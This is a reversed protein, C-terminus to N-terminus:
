LFNRRFFADCAFMEDLCLLITLIEAECNIAIKMLLRRNNDIDALCPFGHYDASYPPNMNCLAGELLGFVKDPFMNFLLMM